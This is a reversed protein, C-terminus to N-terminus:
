YCSFQSVSLNVLILFFIIKEFYWSIADLMGTWLSSRFLFESVNGVAISLCPSFKFFSISLMTSFSLDSRSSISELYRAKSFFCSSSIECLIESIVSLMASRFFNSLDFSALRIHPCLDLFASNLLNGGLSVTKKGFKVWCWILLLLKILLKTWQWHKSAYCFYMRVCNVRWSRPGRAKVPVMVLTGRIM